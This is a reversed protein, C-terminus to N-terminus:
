IRGLEQYVTGDKDVIVYSNGGGSSNHRYKIRYVEEGDRIVEEGSVLKYSKNSAYEEFAERPDAKTETPESVKALDPEVPPRATEEMEPKPCQSSDLVKSGDDCTVLSVAKGTPPKGCGVVMLMVLLAIARKM